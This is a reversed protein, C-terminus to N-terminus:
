EGSVLRVAQSLDGVPCAETEGLTFHFHPQGGNRLTTLSFRMLDVFSKSHGRCMETGLSHSSPWM